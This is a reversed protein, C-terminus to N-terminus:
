ILDLCCIRICPSSLRQCAAPLNYFIPIKLSLTQIRMHNNGAVTQVCYKHPHRHSVKTKKRKQLIHFGHFALFVSFNFTVESRKVAHGVDGVHRSRLTLHLRGTSTRPLMARRGVPRHATIQNIHRSLTNNTIHLESLPKGLILHSHAGIMGPTM